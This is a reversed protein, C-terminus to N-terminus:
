YVNRYNIYLGYIYFMIFKIFYRKNFTKKKNKKFKEINKKDLDIFRIQSDNIINM